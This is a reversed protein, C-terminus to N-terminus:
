CFTSARQQSGFSYGAPRSSAILALAIVSPYRASHPSAIRAYITASEAQRSIVILPDGYPTAHAFPDDLAARRKAKGDNIAQVNAVAAKVFVRRAPVARRALLQKHDPAVVVRALQRKVRQAPTQDRVPALVRLAARPGTATLRESATLSGTRWRV